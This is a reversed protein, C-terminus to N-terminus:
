TECENSKVNLKAHATVNTKVNSKVNAKVNSKGNPKGEAYRDGLGGGFWGWVEGLGGGFRVWVVVLGGWFWGGVVGVVTPWGASVSPFGAIWQRGVPVGVLCRRAVSM